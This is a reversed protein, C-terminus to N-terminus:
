KELIDKYEELFIEREMLYDKKFEKNWKQEHLCWINDQRPIVIKYNRKNFEMSQSIDYFHWGTFLDDRWLVDYQAIMMVGDIVKVEKYKDSFVNKCSIGHEIITDQYIGIYVNDADAGWWIGNEQLYSAGAVGIMGIEINQFIDCMEYIMYPNVIMADQHLYVKYKADTMKMGKNYASAISVAGRVPVIEIEMNPPVKLQQIYYVAEQYIDEENVAIIFAVKGAVVTVREGFVSEQDEREGNWLKEFFEMHMELGHKRFTEVLYRYVRQHFFCMQHIMENLAIASINEQKIYSIFEEENSFGMDIRRIMFKLQYYWKRIEQMEKGAIGWPKIGKNNEAQYIRLCQHVIAIETDFWKKANLEECINFFCAVAFAINGERIWQLLQNKLEENREKAKKSLKGALVLLYGGIVQRCEPEANKIAEVYAGYAMLFKNEQELCNGLQMYMNFENKKELM